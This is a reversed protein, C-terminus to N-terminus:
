SVEKVEYTVCDVLREQDLGLRGLALKLYEPNLDIYISDRSLTQAVMSVTGSGGFPDLVTCPVPTGANCKCTPGWGTTHRAVEYRTAFKGRGSELDGTLHKGTRLGNQNWVPGVVGKESGRRWPAGCKPCCGRESTGAQICPVVLDSPFTAFHAEPFPESPIAWVTRRNRGLPNSWKEPMRFGVGMGDQRNGPLHKGRPLEDERLAVATCRRRNFSRNRDDETADDPCTLPERVALADYFYREARSLLFVYEHAKTPRDTVSEPMPNVKSWIIDSRLYWGDAQLAFAVRWPIGVLQKDKFCDGLNVWCTGDPRLARRVERFVQVMNAVYEEPTTELGLQGVVGYDRISWYPPSTVVCHVSDRPLQKLVTLVDGVYFQHHLATV